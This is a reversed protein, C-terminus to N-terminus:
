ALHDLCSNFRAQEGEPNPNDEFCSELLGLLKEQASMRALEDDM